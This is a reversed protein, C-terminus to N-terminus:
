VRQNENCKSRKDISNISSQPLKVRTIDNGMCHYKEAGLTEETVQHRQQLPQTIIRGNWQQM